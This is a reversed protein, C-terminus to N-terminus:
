VGCGTSGRDCGRNAAGRRDNPRSRNEIVAHVRGGGRKAANARDRQDAAFRKLAALLYSRFRGRLPDAGEIADVQSCSRAFFDHALERAVDETVDMAGCFRWWRRM